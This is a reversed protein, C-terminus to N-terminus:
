RHRLVSLLKAGLVSYTAVFPFTNSYVGLNGALGLAALNWPITHYFFQLVVASVVRDTSTRVKRWGVRELEKWMGGFAKLLQKKKKSFGCGSYLHTECKVRRQVKKAIEDEMLTEEANNRALVPATVKTEEKEPPETM